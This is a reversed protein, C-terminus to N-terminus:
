AGLAPQDVVGQQRVQGRRLGFGDPQDAGDGDVDVVFEGLEVGGAVAGKALRGDRCWHWSRRRQGATRFPHAGSLAHGDRPGFASESAALGLERGLLLGFQPAHVGGAVLGDDIQGFQEGHGPGGHVPGELAARWGPM